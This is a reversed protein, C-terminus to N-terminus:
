LKDNIFRISQHWRSGDIKYTVHKASINRFLPLISNKLHHDQFQWFLISPISQKTGATKARGEFQKSDEPFVTPGSASSDNEYIVEHTKWDILQKSM